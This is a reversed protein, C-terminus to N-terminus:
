KVRRTLSNISIIGKISLMAMPRLQPIILPVAFNAIFQTLLSALAAGAAGMRPILIWNILINSVAGIITLVQVWKTKNEAVMYINHVAGFYSFSSYWVVLSLATQAPLYKEGYVILLIYRSFVTVFLGYIASIWFTLGYLQKYLKVYKTSDMTRAKLIEPRFAESLSSLAVAIINALTYCVSYQAVSDYGVMAELMVRDTQSYIAVLVSSFVFPISAKILKKGIIISPKLDMGREKVYKILLLTGFCFAESVAGIAFITINNFAIGIVKVLASFFFAILKLIAAVNSKYEYRFWYMFLDFASFVISLSYIVIILDSSNKHGSILVYLFMLFISFAAAICRLIIGSSIINGVKRENDAIEKTIIVNLGLTSLSSFLTTLSLAYSLIGYDITSFKRAAIVSLIFSFIAHLVSGFFIWSFNKILKSQMVGKIKKIM